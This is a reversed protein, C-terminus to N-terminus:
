NHSSGGESRTYKDGLFEEETSRSKVSGDPRTTQRYEMGLFERDRTFGVTKGVRSTHRRREDLFAKEDRSESILEGLSNYTRFVVGGLFDDERVTKFPKHRFLERCRECKRPLEWGNEHCKIQLGTKITFSDGCHDCTACKAAFRSKCESCYKPPHEWDRNARIPTGCRECPKEYQKAEFREKCSKCFRPIREWRSSVRMSAGCEECDKDYFQSDYEAKCEKCFRPIEWDDLLHVEHGCETAYETRWKGM